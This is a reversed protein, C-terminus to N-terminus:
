DKKVLTMSRFQRGEAIFKREFNTGVLETDGASAPSEFEVREFLSSNRAAHHEYWRWLDEHDTVLRLEGGDGLLRNFSCM